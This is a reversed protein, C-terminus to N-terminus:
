SKRDKSPVLKKEAYFSYRFNRNGSSSNSSNESEQVNTGEDRQRSSSGHNDSINRRFEVNVDLSVTATTDPAYRAFARVKHGYDKYTANNHNNAIETISEYFNSNMGRNDVYDNQQEFTYMLNAKLKKAIDYNANIGLSIKNQLGGYSMYSYSNNEARSMGGYQALESYDFGQRNLNNAYGIFSVQLTDRFTNVLAGSEYRDRSGGS